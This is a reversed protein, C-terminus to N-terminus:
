KLYLFYISKEKKRKSVGPTTLRQEYSTRWGVKVVTNWGATVTSAVSHKLKLKHWCQDAHQPTICTNVKTKASHTNSIYQYPESSHLKSQKKSVM